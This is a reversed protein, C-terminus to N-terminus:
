KQQSLTHIVASLADIEAEYQHQMEDYEQGLKSLDRYLSRETPTLFLKQEEKEREQKLFEEQLRFLERRSAESAATKEQFQEKLQAYLVSIDRSANNVCLFTERERKVEQLQRQM